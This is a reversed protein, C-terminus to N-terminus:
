CGVISSKDYKEGDTIRWGMVDKKHKEFHTQFM